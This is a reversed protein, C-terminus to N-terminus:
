GLKCGSRQGEEAIQMRGGLARRTLQGRLQVSLMAAEVAERRTRIVFARGLQCRYRLYQVPSFPALAMLFEAQIQAM